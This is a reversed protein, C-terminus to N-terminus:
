ITENLKFGYLITRSFIIGANLTRDEVSYLVSHLLHHTSIFRLYAQNNTEISLIADELTASLGAEKDTLLPPQLM